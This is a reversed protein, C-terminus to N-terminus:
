FVWERWKGNKNSGSDMGFITEKKEKDDDDEENKELEEPPSTQEKGKDEDQGAKVEVEM